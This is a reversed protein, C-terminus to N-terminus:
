RWPFRLGRWMMMTTKDIGDQMFDPFAASQGYSAAVMNQPIGRSQPSLYSAMMAAPGYPSVQLAVNGPPPVSADTPPTQAAMAAMVQAQAQAAASPFMSQWWAKFKGWAGGTTAGFGNMGYGRRYYHRGLGSFGQPRWRIGHGPYYAPGSLQMGSAPGTTFENAVAEVAQGPDYGVMPSLVSTRYVRDPRMYHSAQGHQPVSDGFGSGLLSIQHM